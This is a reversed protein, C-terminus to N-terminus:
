LLLYREKNGENAAATRTLMLLLKERLFCTKHLCCLVELTDIDVPEYFSKRGATGKHVKLRQAFFFLPKCLTGFFVFTQLPTGWGRHNREERTIIKESWFCNRLFLRCSTPKLLTSPLRNAYLCLESSNRGKSYFLFGTKDERGLKMEWIVLSIIRVFIM